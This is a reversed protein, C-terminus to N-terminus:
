RIVYKREPLFVRKKLLGRKHGLRIITITGASLVTILMLGKSQVYLQSDDINVVLVLFTRLNLAFNCRSELM